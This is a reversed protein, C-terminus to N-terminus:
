EVGGLMKVTWIISIPDYKDTATAVVAGIASDFDYSAFMSRCEMESIWGYETM